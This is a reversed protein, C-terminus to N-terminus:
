QVTPPRAGPAKLGHIFGHVDLDEDIDPWHLADGFPLIRWNRRQQPTAHYLRPYWWLPVTVETGNKLLVHMKDNDFSADATLLERQPRIPRAEENTQLTSM